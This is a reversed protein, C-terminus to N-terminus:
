KVLILSQKLIKNKNVLMFIALINYMKIIEYFFKRLRDNKKRLFITFSKTNTLNIKFKRTQKLQTQISEYNIQM